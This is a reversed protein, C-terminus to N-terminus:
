APAEPPIPPLAPAATATMEAALQELEAMREIEAVLEKRAREGDRAIQEPTRAQERAALNARLQAVTKEHPTMRTNRSTVFLPALEDGPKPTAEPLGRKPHRDRYATM